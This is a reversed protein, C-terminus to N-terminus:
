PVRVGTEATLPGRGPGSSSPPASNSPGSILPEAAFRLGDTLSLLLANRFGSNGGRGFGPLSSTSLLIIITM